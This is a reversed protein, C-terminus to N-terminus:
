AAAAPSTSAPRLPFSLLESGMQLKCAGVDSSDSQTRAGCTSALGVKAGSMRRFAILLGHAHRGPDWFDPNPGDQATSQGLSERTCRKSDSTAKTPRLVTFYGVSRLCSTSRFSGCAPMDRPFCANRPTSILHSPFGRTLDTIQVPAPHIDAASPPCPIPPARESSAVRYTNQKSATCPIQM